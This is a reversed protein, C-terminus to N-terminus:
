KERRVIFISSVILIILMIIAVIIDTHTLEGSIFDEIPQYIQILTFAVLLIETIIGYIIQRSGQKSKEIAIRNELLLFCKNKGIELGSTKYIIEMVGKENTSMNASLISSADLFVNTVTSKSRQLELDTLNISELNDILADFLFWASQLSAEYRIVSDIIETDIEEVVAVASWSATVLTKENYEAKEYGVLNYSQIKRKIDEWCNENLIKGLLGPNMLLDIEKTAVCQDVIHYITLVYSLGHHKYSANSSYPRTSVKKLGNKINWIINITDFIPKIELCPSDKWYLIETQEAKKEYYAKCAVNQDFFGFVKENYTATLKKVVFVGIGYTFLRCEIQETVNFKCLYESDSEDIPCDPLTVKLDNIFQKKSYRRTDEYNSFSIGMDFPIIHVLSCEM